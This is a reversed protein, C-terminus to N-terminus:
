SPLPASTHFSTKIETDIHFFGVPLRM